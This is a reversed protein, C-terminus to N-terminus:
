TSCRENFMETVNIGTREYIRRCTKRYRRYRSGRWFPRQWSKRGFLRSFHLINPNEIANTVERWLDRSAYLGNFRSVDRIVEWSLDLYHVQNRFYKNLLDMDPLTFNKVFAKEINSMDILSRDPDNFRIAATDFLIVGTGFFKQGLEFENSFGLKNAKEIFKPRKNRYIQHIIPWRLFARELGLAFPYSRCAGILNGSLNVDYLEKLDSIVLTDADLFICKDKILWPLFLPIMSAASWRLALPSNEYSRLSTTDFNRVKACAFNFNNCLEFIVSTDFEHGTTFVTINTKCTANELLSFM